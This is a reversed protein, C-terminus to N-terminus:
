KTEEPSNQLKQSSHEASLTAENLKSTTAVTSTTQQLTESSPITAQPALFSLLPQTTLKFSADVSFDLDRPRDGTGFLYQFIHTTNKVQKLADPVHHTDKEETGNVVKPLVSKLLSQETTFKIRQYNQSNVNLLLELSYCNRM